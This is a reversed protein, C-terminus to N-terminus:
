IICNLPVIMKCAIAERGFMQVECALFSRPYLACEFLLVTCFEIAAAGMM